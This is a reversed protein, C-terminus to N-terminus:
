FKIVCPNRNYATAQEQLRDSSDVHWYAVCLVVTAVNVVLTIIFFTIMKFSIVALVRRCLFYSHIHRLYM